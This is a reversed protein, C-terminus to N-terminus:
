LFNYFILNNKVKKGGKEEGEAGANEAPIINKQENENNKKGGEPNEQASNEGTIENAAQANEATPQDGKNPFKKAFPMRMMPM